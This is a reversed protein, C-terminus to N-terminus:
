TLPQGVADRPGADRPDAQGKVVSSEEGEDDDQIPNFISDFKYYIDYLAVTAADLLDSMGQLAHSMRDLEGKLKIATQRNEPYGESLNQSALAHFHIMHRVNEVMDINEAMRYIELTISVDKNKNNKKM